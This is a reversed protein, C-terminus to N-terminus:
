DRSIRDLSRRIDALESRILEHDRALTTYAKAQAELADTTRESQTDSIDRQNREDEYLWGPVWWRTRKLSGVAILIVVALFAAWGGADSLAKGLAVPDLNM